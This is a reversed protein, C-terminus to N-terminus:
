SNGTPFCPDISQLRKILLLKRKGFQRIRAKIGAFLRRPGPGVKGGSKSEGQHLSAPVLLHARRGFQGSENVSFGM